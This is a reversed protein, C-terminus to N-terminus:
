TTPNCTPVTCRAVCRLAGQIQFADQDQAACLQELREVYQSALPNIVSSPAYGPMGTAHYDYLCIERVQTSKDASPSRAKLSERTEIISYTRNRTRMISPSQLQLPPYTAFSTRAVGFM